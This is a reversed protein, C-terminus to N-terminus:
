KGAIRQAVAGFVGPAPVVGAAIQKDKSRQAVSIGLVSLAVGWQMSLAGVISSIATLIEGSNEPREIIAYLLGGVIGFCQVTWTLTVAYGFTPRWRKVYKDDQSYEARMTANVEALRTTEAALVMRQLEARHEMQLAQVKLFAEPDNALATQVAHPDNDVGLASAILTGVAGGAPGGLAAGVIPAFNAVQKGIDSWSM